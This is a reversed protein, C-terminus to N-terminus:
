TGTPLCLYAVLQKAASYQGLGLPSLMEPIQCTGTTQGQDLLEKLLWPLFPHRESIGAHFSHPSRWSWLSKAPHAYRSLLPLRSSHCRGGPVSNTGQKLHLREWGTPLLASHQFEAATRQEQFTQVSLPVCPLPPYEPFGAWVGTLGSVGPGM